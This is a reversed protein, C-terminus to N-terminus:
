KRGGSDRSAAAQTGPADSTTLCPTTATLIRDAHHVLALARLCAGVPRLLDTYLPLGRPAEQAYAVLRGDSAELRLEVLAPIEAEQLTFRTWFGQCAASFRLQLVGVPRGADTVTSTAVVTSDAGCGADSPDAGDHPPGPVVVAADNGGRAPQQPHVIASHGVFGVVGAVSLAAVRAPWRLRRRLPSGPAVADSGSSSRVAAIAQWRQLWPDPDGDCARVFAEVVPQSPLRRGQVAEALTSASFHVKRAM